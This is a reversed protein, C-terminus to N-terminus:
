YVVSLGRNGRMLRVSFGLDDLSRREEEMRNADVM